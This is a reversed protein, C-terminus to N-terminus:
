ELILLIVEACMVKSSHKLSASSVARKDESILSNQCSPTKEEKLPM